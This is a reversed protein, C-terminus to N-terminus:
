TFIVLKLVAGVISALILGITWKVGGSIRDLTQKILAVETTLATLSNKIEDMRSNCEDRTVFIEKLRVLDESDIM